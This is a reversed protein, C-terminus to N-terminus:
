ERRVASLVVRLRPRVPEAARGTAIDWGDDGRPMLVWGHAAGPDRRWARVADAVDLEVVEEGESVTADPIIAAEVGDHQVGNGHFDRWSAGPGWPRLMRYLGAGDGEDITTLQLTASEIRAGRPIRRPDFDHFRILAQTLVPDDDSTDEADITVVPAGPSAPGHSRVEIVTSETFVATPGATPAREAELPAWRARLDIPITFRSAHPGAESLTETQFADLPPSYTQVRIEGADDDLTILRLWGNGGRPADQFNQLMEVVPRGRRNLSIQHYEGNHRGAGRSHFHGNLVLFIRDHDAILDEWLEEGTDSRGPPFDDVYAHTSVIVPLGPHGRIVRRAWEIPSPDRSRVGLINTDPRWELALHLFERGSAEFIQYTNAGSPDAGGFWPQGGFRPEGFRELYNHLGTVKQGTVAYDHNGPLVSWPVVWELRRLAREAREYHTDRYGRQVVDGLHTVFALAPRRDRAVQDRIWDTQAVFLPTNEPDDTYHQTDPLAVITFPDAIAVRPAAFAGCAIAGLCLFLRRANRVHPKTSSFSQRQM